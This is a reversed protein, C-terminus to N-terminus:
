YCQKIYKYYIAELDLLYFIYNMLGANLFKFAFSPGRARANLM